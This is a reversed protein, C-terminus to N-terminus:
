PCERADPYLVREEPMEALLPATVGAPANTSQQAANGEPTWALFYYSRDCITRDPIIPFPTSKRCALEPFDDDPGASRRNPRDMSGAPRPPTLSQPTIAHYNLLQTDPERYRARREYGYFGAMLVSVLVVLIIGHFTQIKWRISKPLM